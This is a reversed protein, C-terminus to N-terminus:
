NHSTAAQYLQANDIAGGALAALTEAFALDAMSYIQKSEAWVLTITGLIKSRSKIPVIMLSYFSLDRMMSLHEENTAAAVLMEDTIGNRMESEGTRIVHSTGSEAKPGRPYKKAVELAKKIKKPDVHAIALRKLRGDDQIIDVACWDSLHPVMANAVSKLTAAYDLSGTIEQAAKSLFSLYDTTHGPKLQLSTEVQPSVM